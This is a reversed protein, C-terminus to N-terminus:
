SFVVSGLWPNQRKTFAQEFRRQVPVALGPFMGTRGRVRTRDLRRPSRACMHRCQFPARVAMAGRSVLVIAILQKAAHLQGHVGKKSGGFTTEHRSEPPWGSDAIKM